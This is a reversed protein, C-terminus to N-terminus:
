ASINPYGLHLQYPPISTPPLKPPLLKVRIRFNPPRALQGRRQTQKASALIMKPFNQKDGQARNELGRAAKLLIIAVIPGM